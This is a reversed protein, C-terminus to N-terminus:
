RLYIINSPLLAMLHNWGLSFDEHEELNTAKTKTSNLIVLLCEARAVRNVKKATNFYHAYSSEVWEIHKFDYLGSEEEVERLIGHHVHEGENVGGAFLLPKGDPHLAIAYKQSKPDFIVAAGGNRFEENERKIDKM